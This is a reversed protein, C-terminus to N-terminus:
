ARNVKGKTRSTEEKTIPFLDHSNLIMDEKYALFLSVVLGTEDSKSLLGQRKLIEYTRQKEGEDRYFRLRLDGLNCVVLGHRLCLNIWANPDNYKSVVFFLIKANGNVFATEILNEMGPIGIYPTTGCTSVIDTMQSLHQKLQPSYPKCLDAVFLHSSLNVDRAFRLPEPEIDILTVEYASESEPFPHNVTEQNTWREIIEQVTMDYKLAVADLGHCSGAITVRIVDQSLLVRSYYKLREMVLFPLEYSLDRVLYKIYPTPSYSSYLSNFDAKVNKSM